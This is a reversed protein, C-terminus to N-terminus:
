PGNAPEGSDGKGGPEQGDGAAFAGIDIDYFDDPIMESLKKIAESFTKASVFYSFSSDKEKYMFYGEFGSPSGYVDFRISQGNKSLRM